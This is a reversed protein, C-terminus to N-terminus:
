LDGYLIGDLTSGAASCHVAGVRPPSTSYDWDAAGTLPDRVMSGDPNSVYPGQWMSADLSETSGDDRVGTAPAAASTLDTVQVPHLGTHAKCLALATRIRRLDSRVASEKARRGAGLLRPIVILSLIAIVLVVILTEILTFGRRPTGATHPQAFLHERKM